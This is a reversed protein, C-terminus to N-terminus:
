ASCATSSRWRAATSPASCSGAAAADLAARRRRYHRPQGSDDAARVADPQAGPRRPVRAGPDRATGQRRVPGEVERRTGRRQHVEPVGDKNLYGGATGLIEFQDFLQLLDQPASRLCRRAAPSTLPRRERGDGSASGSRRRPSPPAAAARRRTAARRCSERGRRGQVDLDGSDDDAPLVDHRRLGPLASTGSGHRRRGPSGQRRGAAGRDPVRRRLGRAAPREGQATFDKAPPFTLGAVTIGQPADITLTLPILSPDRPKDSQIHFGPAVKVQLVAKVTTGARVPEAIPSPPRRPTPCAPARSAWASPRPSSCAARCSGDSSCWYEIM